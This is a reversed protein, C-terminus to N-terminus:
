GRAASWMAYLWKLKACYGEKADEPPLEMCTLDCTPELNVDILMVKCYTEEEGAKWRGHREAGRGERLLYEEGGTAAHVCPFVM